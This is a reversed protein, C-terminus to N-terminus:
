RRKQGPENIAVIRLANKKAPIPRVWFRGGDFMVGTQNAVLADVADGPEQM